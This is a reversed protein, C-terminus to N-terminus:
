VLCVLLRKKGKGKGDTPKKVEFSKIGHKQCTEKNGHGLVKVREKFSQKEDVINSSTGTKSAYAHLQECGSDSIEKAVKPFYNAWGSEYSSSDSSSINIIEPKKKKNSNM